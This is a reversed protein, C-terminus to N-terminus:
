AKDSVLVRMPVGPLRYERPPTFGSDRLIREYEQETHVQGGTTWALMLVSFLHPVPEREPPEDGITFGVTVLQGDHRVAGHVRTLLETAKEVSFHHLVNTVLAVDYPGGLGVEFMDGSIFRARDHVGMEKARRETIPLVNPWDLSHVRAHTLRQAITYGYLGHGCAVDLIDVESRETLRAALVDTVLRATPGTAATAHNAFDEWYDFNPTEANEGVVCGGRRVADGLVKLTDWEHDGALVDKLHGLYGPRGNVLLEEAGPALAFSDGERRLLGLAVLANLLIRIGRESVELRDALQSPRAPRDALADFVGLDLGTRLLSTDRYGQMIRLVTERDVESGLTVSM